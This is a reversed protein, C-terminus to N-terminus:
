FIGTGIAGGLFIIEKIYDGVDPFTELLLAINTGPGIALITVKSKQAKLTNYIHLIVNEDVAERTNEEPFDFSATAGDDVYRTRLIPKTSGSM